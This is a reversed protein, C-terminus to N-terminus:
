SHESCSREVDHNLIAGQMQSLNGPVIEHANGIRIGARGVFQRPWRQFAAFDPHRSEEAGGVVCM